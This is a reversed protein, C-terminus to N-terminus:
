RNSDRVLLHLQDCLANKWLTTEENSVRAQELRRRAFELDRKSEELARCPCLPSVLYFAILLPLWHFSLLNHWALRIAEYSVSCRVRQCPQFPLVTFYQVRVYISCISCATNV